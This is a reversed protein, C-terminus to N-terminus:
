HPRHVAQREGPRVAQPPEIVDAAWRLAMAIRQRVGGVKGLGPSSVVKGPRKTQGKQGADFLAFVEAPDEDEEYFREAEESKVGAM